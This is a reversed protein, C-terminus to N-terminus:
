DRNHFFGNKILGQLMECERKYPQTNLFFFKTICDHDSNEILARQKQSRLLSFDVILKIVGDCYNNYAM